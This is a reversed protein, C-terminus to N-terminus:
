PLPVISMYLSKLMELMALMAFRACNNKVVLKL